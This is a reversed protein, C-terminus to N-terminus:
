LIKIALREADPYSSTRKRIILTFRSGKDLFSGIGQERVSRGGEKRGRTLLKFRQYSALEQLLLKEEEQNRLEELNIIKISHEKIYIVYRSAESEAGGAYGLGLIKGVFCNITEIETSSPKLLVNEGPTGKLIGLDYM